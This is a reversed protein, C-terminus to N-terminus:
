TRGAGSFNGTPPNNFGPTRGAGSFNGMPPNNLGPGGPAALLTGVPATWPDGGAWRRSFNGM